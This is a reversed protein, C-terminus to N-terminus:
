SKFKLPSSAAWIQSSKLNVRNFKADFKVWIQDRGRKVRAALNLNVKLDAM